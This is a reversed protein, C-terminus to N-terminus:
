RTANKRSVTKDVNLTARSVTIKVLLDVALVFSFCCKNKMDVLRGLCLISRSKVGMQDKVCM